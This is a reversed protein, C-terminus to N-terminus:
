KQKYNDHKDSEKSKQNMATIRHKWPMEKKKTATRM